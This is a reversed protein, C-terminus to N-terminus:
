TQLCVNLVKLFILFTIAVMVDSVFELLKVWVNVRVYRVEFVILKKVSEEWIRVCGSRWIGVCGEWDLCLM